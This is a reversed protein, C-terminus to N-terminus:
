LVSVREAGNVGVGMFFVCLFWCLFVFCFFSFRLCYYFVRVYIFLRDECPGPDVVAHKSGSVRHSM